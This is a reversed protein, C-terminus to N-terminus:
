VYKIDCERIKKNEIFDLLNMLTMIKIEKTKLNTVVYDCLRGEERYKIKYKM